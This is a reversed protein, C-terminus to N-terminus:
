LGHEYRNEGQREIGVGLAALREFFDPFSKNVAEAGAITGGTIMCLVALAMVIRHDGHSNLRESPAHLGHGVTVTNEGIRMAVGFKALEEYMAWSRDSEKWRLRRTGTFVGGAHAAAFAFLLPGLDPCDALDLTAPGCRLADFYEACARDGQLSDPDLGTVPVGLALFPAANSWDGEVTVDSQWKYYQRGPVAITERDTWRTEVGFTCLADMTMDIYSRSEVPPRLRIVSDGPLTPLAFLLGSVFQSSVDGPLRFEGPSLKGQVRLSSAEREFAIGQERCVDEYVGLPRALLRESGTFTIPQGTLCLPLLFRLTGASERCDLVAGEGGCHPTYGTVVVDGDRYACDVHLARLCDVTALVDESRAVGCVTTKGITLGACILLRQAMSKSPPAAVTGAPTSPYITVNM